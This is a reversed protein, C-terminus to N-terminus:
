QTLRAIELEAEALDKRASAVRTLDASVTSLTERQSAFLRLARVTVSEPRGMKEALRRASLRIVDIGLLRAIRVEHDSIARDMAQLTEAGLENEEREEAPFELCKRLNELGELNRTLQEIEVATLCKPCWTADSYNRICETCLHRDCRWCQASLGDYCRKGCHCTPSTAAACRVAAPTM